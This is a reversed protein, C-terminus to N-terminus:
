TARDVANNARWFSLSRLLLRAQCAHRIIEPDAGYQLAISALIAANDANSQLSSGLKGPVHLFIEALRGDAFHGARALYDHNEFRFAISDNGRRDPLRQRESM